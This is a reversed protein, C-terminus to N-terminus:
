AGEFLGLFLLASAVGALDCLTDLGGGIPVIRSFGLGFLGAAGRPPPLRFLVCPFAEWM